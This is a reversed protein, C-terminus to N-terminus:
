GLASTSPEIGPGPYHMSKEKYFFNLVNAQFVLRIFSAFCTEYDRFLNGQGVSNTTTGLKAKQM